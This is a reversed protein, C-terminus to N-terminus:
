AHAQKAQIRSSRAAPRNKMFLGLLGAILPLAFLVSIATTLGAADGLRGVLIVALAGLGGAFGMSLGAALAKNEPIAEQAAVVTVSFNSMLTAGAFGLFIMSLVGHSLLFGFFLPTAVLLSGVILNKRGYTDSILGGIIGGVAGSALMITLLHSSAIDSLRQTKFYLPLLALMGTYALSRIAIVGVLVSLEGAASKLSRGVAAISPAAGKSPEDKPAFLLLLLAVVAGPIIAFTTSHLGYAQFFPILLLPSLAFGLNGFAIFASLLVAKRDGAMVNVLTSARPHFAATGLGAVAALTVLITYNHVVGTLSLMIAMWLTGLVFIWRKGHGDFLYGFLPQAFSSFITFISVLVAAQTASFGPMLVVLFPLMQPLFNSYMDNLLHSLSLLAIMPYRRSQKM